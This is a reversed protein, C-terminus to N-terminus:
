VYLSHNTIVGYFLKEQFNSIVNLVKFRELGLLIPELEEMFSSVRLVMKIFSGLQHVPVFYSLRNVDKTTNWLHMLRASVMSTEFNFTNALEGSLRLVEDSGTPLKPLEDANQVRGIPVFFALFEAIEDFSSGDLHGDHIVQARALPCGDSMQRAVLGKPTPDSCSVFGLDRLQTVGKTWTQGIWQKQRDLEDQHGAQDRLAATDVAGHKTRLEKLQKRVQKLQKTTLKFVRQEMREELKIIELQGESSVTPNKSLAAEMALIQGDIERQLLSTKVSDVGRHINRLVFMKDVKLKSETPTPKSQVMTSFISFPAIKGMPYYIVYGKTDMGRRGARGAMQWFEDTRLWRKSDQGTPKDLQTFVTTRAPMNIGVGLTETAFVAKLMKKQFLVEVFERHLPFMGAHHYGVGRRLLNVEQEWGPIKQLDSRHKRMTTNWISNWRKEYQHCEEGHERLQSEWLEDTIREEYGKPRRPKPSVMLNRTISHAADVCKRRSMCFVIAPCKELKVLSQVLSPYTPETKSAAIYNESKLSEGGHTCFMPTFEAGYIKGLYLPVHRDSREILKTPRRQNLWGCFAEANSLTASLSVIQINAHLFMTTEEWVPGRDPDNIYHVEDQIVVSVNVLDPDPVGSTQSRVLKNRLIEATMILLEGAGDGGPPTCRAKIDGTLLTVRGNLMDVFSSYKENSLAKIPSTYVARKDQMFAAMIATIAVATKGSGTPAMGLIDDGAAISALCDQQFADLGYGLFDETATKLEDVTTPVPAPFEPAVVEVPADVKAVDSEGAIRLSHRGNKLVGWLRVTAGSPGVANEYYSDHTPIRVRRHPLYAYVSEDDGTNEIRVNMPEKLCMCAVEMVTHMYHFQAIQSMRANLECLGEKTLTECLRGHYCFQNYLDPFRRIPSTMHAYISGIDVHAKNTGDGAVLSYSAPVGTEKTRLLGSGEGVLHAGMYKNYELMAWAVIDDARDCSSIHRLVEWEDPLRGQFEDYSMRHKNVVTSVGHTPTIVGKNWDLWVTICQRPEGERLSLIDQALGPPLMGQSVLNDDVNYYASAGRQLAWRYMVDDSVGVTADTIHVGVQYHDPGLTKVSLADDMDMTGPNDVTFVELPSQDSTPSTQGYDHLPYRCPKIGFHYQLARSETEASGVPGYIEMLEGSSSVKAWRDTRGVVNTQVITVQDNDDPPHLASFRVGRGAVRENRSVKLIGIM